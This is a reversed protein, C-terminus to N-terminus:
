RYFRLQITQRQQQVPMGDELTILGRTDKEKMLGLYFDLKSQTQAAIQSWSMRQEGNQLLTETFANLFLPGSPPAQDFPEGAPKIRVFAYEGPSSSVLLVSGRTRFFLDDFLPAIKTPL